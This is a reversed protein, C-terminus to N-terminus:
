GVVYAPCLSIYNSVVSACITEYKEQMMIEPLM